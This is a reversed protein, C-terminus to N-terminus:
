PWTQYFLKRNRKAMLFQALIPGDKTIKGQDGRQLFNVM